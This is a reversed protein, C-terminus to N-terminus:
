DLRVEFCRFLAWIEPLRYLVVRVDLGKAVGRRRVRLKILTPLRRPDKRAILVILDLADSLQDTPTGEGDGRRRALEQARAGASLGHVSAGALDVSRRGPASVASELALAPM